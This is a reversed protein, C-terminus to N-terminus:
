EMALLGLDYKWQLVRTVASHLQQKTIRGTNVAELVATYQERYESSALMDNGALVALVAAEGAGYQQTIAGMQLDDTIIVGHFGLQDRMFEIVAPSLSAPLQDDLCSVITHSVMIGGCGADIGYSFPVLDATQIEELTRNDVAIGIHTDVNNGYGPFHKLVSGIHNQKMTNVLSAICNGTEDPSLGLSRSYMFAAPDTTIDCVPALNVNIGVSSLLQCKETETSRLLEIGGQQYLSRPSPFCQERFATQNSIRVVDGGEEDVAILLPIKSGAQYSHITASLSAPTQGTVDRGFLVYGGLHYQTIDALASENSPCRALFLQGVLQETTMTDMITDPDFVPETIIVPETDPQTDTSSDPSAQSCGSLALLVMLLCFFRKM